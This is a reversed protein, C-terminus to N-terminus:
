FQTPLKGSEKSNTNDTAKPPTGKLAEAIGAKVSETYASQFDAIKKEQLELNIDVLHDVMKVPLQLESLKEIATARNERLTIGKEREEFEKAKTLELEKAREEETLKNRRDADETAKKVADEILKEAKRKEEDRTKSAIRDLDEQTFSKPDGKADKNDEPEGNGGKDGGQQDDGPTPVIPTKDEAM